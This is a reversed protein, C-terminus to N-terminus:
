SRKGRRTFSPLDVTSTVTAAVTSALLEAKAQHRRDRELQRLLRKSIRRVSRQHYVAAEALPCVFPSWKTKPDRGMGLGDFVTGEPYLALRGLSSSLSTPAFIWMLGAPAPVPELRSM